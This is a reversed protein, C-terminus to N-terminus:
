PGHTAWREVGLAEMVLEVSLAALLMGMVRILIESGHRGIVRLIRQAALMMLLTIGLIALLVLASVAQQGVSYLDNDTAVIVAMIAGPTAISPIALPFVALNHGPEVLEDRRPAVSGFIMQLGFLFLVVGGAVQVSILRIGLGALVVQGLVIAAILIIAAYLVAQVAVKRREVASLGSALAAFLVVTGVPDITTWFLLADRVIRAGM